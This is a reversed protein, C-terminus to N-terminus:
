DAAIAGALIYGRHGSFTRLVRWGEIAIVSSGLTNTVLFHPSSAAAVISGAIPALDRCPTLGIPVAIMGADPQGNQGSHGNDSGCAGALLASAAGLLCIAEQRGM